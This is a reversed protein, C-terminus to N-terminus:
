LGLGFEPYEPLDDKSILCFSQRLYDEINGEFIKKRFCTKYFDYSACDTPDASFGRIPKEYLRFESATMGYISWPEGPKTPPSILSHEGLVRPINVTIEKFGQELFAEVIKSAYVEVSKESCVDSILLQIQHIKDSFGQKILRNVLPKAGLLTQTTGDATLDLLTLETVEALSYDEFFGCTQEEVKDGRLANSASLDIDNLRSLFIIM